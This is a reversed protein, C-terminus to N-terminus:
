GNNEPQESETGTEKKRKNKQKPMPTENATEMAKREGRNQVQDGANDKDIVNSRTPLNLSTAVSGNKQKQNKQYAYDNGLHHIKM